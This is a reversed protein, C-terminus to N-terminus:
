RCEQCVQRPEVEPACNEPAGTYGSPDEIQSPFEGVTVLRQTPSPNSLESPKQVVCNCDCFYSCKQYWTETNNKKGNISCFM